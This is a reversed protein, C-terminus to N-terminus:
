FKRFCFKMQGPIYFENAKFILGSTTYLLCSRFRTYRLYELMSAYKAQLEQKVQQMKKNEKSCYHQQFIAPLSNTYIKARYFSM